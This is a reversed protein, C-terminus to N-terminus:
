PQFDNILRRLIPPKIHIEVKEKGFEVTVPGTKFLFESTDFTQRRKRVDVLMAQWMGIDSGMAEYIASSQMDWLFQYHLWQKVYDDVNKNISAIAKYARDMTVNGAPLQSMVSRYHLDIDNQKISLGVQYRQAQIRPLRLIINQWEQLQRVLNQYVSQTPPHCFLVQNTLRMELSISKVM